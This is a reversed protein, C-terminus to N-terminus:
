RNAAITIVKLTRSPWEGIALRKLHSIKYKHADRPGGADAYSWTNETLSWNTAITNLISEQHNTSSLLEVGANHALSLWGAARRVAASSLSIICVDNIIQIIRTNKIHADTTVRSVIVEPSNLRQRWDRSEEGRSLTCLITIPVHTYTQRETEIHTQRSAYRQFWMAASWWFKQAYQRHGNSQRQIDANRYTTYKRNQSHRCTQVYLGIARWARRQFVVLVPQCHLFGVLNTACCHLCSSMTFPAGPTFHAIQSQRNLLLHQGAVWVPRHMLGLCCTTHQVLM